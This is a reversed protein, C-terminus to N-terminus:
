TFTNLKSELIERSFCLGVVKEVGLIWVHCENELCDSQTIHLTGLIERSKARSFTGM